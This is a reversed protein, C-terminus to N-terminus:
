TEQAKMRQEIAYLWEFIATAAEDITLNVSHFSDDDLGRGESLGWANITVTGSKTLVVSVRVEYESAVRLARGISLHAESWDGVIGKAFDRLERDTPKEPGWGKEVTARVREALDRTFRTGVLQEFESRVFPVGTSDKESM